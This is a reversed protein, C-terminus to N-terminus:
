LLFLKVSKIHRSKKLSLFILGRKQHRLQEWPRLVQRKEIVIICSVLIMIIYMSALINWGVFYQIEGPCYFQRSRTMRSEFHRFLQQLIQSWSSVPVSLSPSHFTRISALTRCSHSAFVYSFNGKAINNKCKLSMENAFWLILFLFVKPWFLKGFIQLLSVKTFLIPRGLYCM